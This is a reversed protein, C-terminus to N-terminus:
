VMLRACFGGKSRRHARQRETGAPAREKIQGSKFAADDLMDAAKLAAAKGPYTTMATKGLAVVGYVEPALQIVLSITDGARTGTAMNILGGNAWNEFIM